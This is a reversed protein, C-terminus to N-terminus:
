HDFDLANRRIVTPFLESFKEHTLRQLIRLNFKVM